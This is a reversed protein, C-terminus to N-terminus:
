GQGKKLAPRGKWEGRLRQEGRGEYEREREREREWVRERNFFSHHWVFESPQACPPKVM